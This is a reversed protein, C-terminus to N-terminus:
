ATAAVSPAAGAVTADTALVVAFLQQAIAQYRQGICQTLMSVGLAAQDEGRFPLPNGAFGAVHGQQATRLDIGLEFAPQALFASQDNGAQSAM